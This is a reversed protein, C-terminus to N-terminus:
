AGGMTAINTSTGDITAAISGDPVVVGGVIDGDFSILPASPNVLVTQIQATRVIGLTQTNDINGQADVTLPTNGTDLDDSRILDTANVSSVNGFFAVNDLQAINANVEGKSLIRQVTIDQNDAISIVNGNVNIGNAGVYPLVFRIGLNSM